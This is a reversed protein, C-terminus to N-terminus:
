PVNRRPRRYSALLAMFLMASATPEPVRASAVYASSTSGLQRQWILFDAGDVARDGNADGQDITATGTTGFGAKWTTLDAGDVDGDNDFDATFPTVAPGTQSFRQTFSALNIADTGSLGSIFVNTVVFMESQPAFGLTDLSQTFNSAKDAIVLTPGLDAGSSDSADDSINALGGNSGFSIGTLALEHNTFAKGGALARVRFKFAFDISNLGLISLQGNAAFQLGPNSPDNVLPVVAIQSLDPTVVATADLSILEWDSFQSNGVNISDGNFLQQLTAGAAFRVFMGEALLCAGILLMRKACALPRSWRPRTLLGNM